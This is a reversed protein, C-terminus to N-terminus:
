CLLVYIPPADAGQLPHQMGPRPMLQEPQPPLYGSEASDGRSRSSMVLSVCILAIHQVQSPQQKALSMMCASANM